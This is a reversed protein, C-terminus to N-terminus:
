SVASCVLIRTQPFESLIERTAEAWDAVPMDTDMLIIDPKHERTKLLAERGNEAEAVVESHGKLAHRVVHRAFEFDNVVLIRQPM